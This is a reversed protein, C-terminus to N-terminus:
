LSQQDLSKLKEELAAIFAILPNKMIREYMPYKEEGRADEEITKIKILMALVEGMEKKPAKLIMDKHGGVGILYDRLVDNLQRPTQTRLADLVRNLENIVLRAYHEYSNESQRDTACFADLLMSRGTYVQSEAPDATARDPNPEGDTFETNDM